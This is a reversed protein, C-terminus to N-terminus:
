NVEAPPEFRPASAEDHDDYDASSRASRSPPTYPANVDLIEHVNFSQQLENLQKRFGAYKKGFSRAVEPLRKGFLVIAVIGVIVLEGFGLGFM